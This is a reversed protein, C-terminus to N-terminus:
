KRVDCAAHRGRQQDRHAASGPGAGGGAGGRCGRAATRCTL